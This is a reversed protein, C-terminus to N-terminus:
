LKRWIRGERWEKLGGAGVQGALNGGVTPGCYGRERVTESVQTGRSSSGLHAWLHGPIFDDLSLGTPLSCPPAQMRPDLDSSEPHALQEM